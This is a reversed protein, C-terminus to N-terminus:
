GGGTHYEPDSLRDTSGTPFKVGALLNVNFSFDKEIKRYVVFNGILSADGIGSEAATQITSGVPRQYSRYIVPINFQLDLRSNLNYGAFITTVSDNIYQGYTNAVEKGENQLTGEHIYQEVVGGFFGKGGGAGQAQMAAYVSCMDCGMLPRGSVALLVFASVLIKM